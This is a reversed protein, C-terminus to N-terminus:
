KYRGRAEPKFLKARRQVRFLCLFQDILNSSLAERAHTLAQKHVSDSDSHEWRCSLLLPPLFGAPSVCVDDDSCAHVLSPLSCGGPLPARYSPSLFSLGDQCWTGHSCLAAAVDQIKSSGSNELATFVKM